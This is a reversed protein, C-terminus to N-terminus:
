TGKAGARLGLQTVGGKGVESLVSGPWGVSWGEGGGMLFILPM